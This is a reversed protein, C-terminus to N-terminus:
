RPSGTGDPNEIAPVMLWDGAAIERPDDLDNAIAIRTWANADDAVAYEGLVVFLKTRAPPTSTAPDSGADIPSSM